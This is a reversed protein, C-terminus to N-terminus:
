KILVDDIDHGKYTQSWLEHIVANIEDVKMQHYRMLAQHPAAAACSHTPLHTAHRRGDSARLRVGDLAKQYMQLDKSGMETTEKRIM